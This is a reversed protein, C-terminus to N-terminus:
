KGLYSYKLIENKDLLSNGIIKLDYYTPEPEYKFRKDLCWRLDPMLSKIHSEIHKSFMDLIYYGSSIYPKFLRDIQPHSHIQAPLNKPIDKMNHIPLREYFKVQLITQYDQRAICIAEGLATVFGDLKIALSKPNDVNKLDIDKSVPIQFYDLEKTLERRSIQTCCCTQVSDDNPWIVEGTRYFELIYHFARGNRDIFYENDNTPHLLSHNRAQFMTGLLTDPYATLTSRYTEYKIGGVNLIIRENRLSIETM